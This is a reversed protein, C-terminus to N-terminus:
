SRDTPETTVLAGGMRVVARVHLAPADYPLEEPPTVKAQVGGALASTDVDVAWERPVTVRVGGMTAHLDLTAGGSDLAVDRLDLDLGGMAAVAAGTRLHRAHSRFQKGGMVAAVRFEDSEDDGASLRKALLQGATWALADMAVLWLLPRRVKKWM